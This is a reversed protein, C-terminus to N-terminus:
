DTGKNQQDNFGPNFPGGSYKQDAQNETDTGALGEEIPNGDGISTNEMKVDTPHENNKDSEFEEPSQLTGNSLFVPTQEEPQQQKEETTM